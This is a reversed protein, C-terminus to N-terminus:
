AVHVEPTPSSSVTMMPLKTGAASEKKDLRGAILNNVWTSLPATEIRIYTHPRFDLPALRRGM